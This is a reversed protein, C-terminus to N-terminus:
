ESHGGDPEAPTDKGGPRGGRRTAALERLTQVVKEVDWRAHGGVSVLDPVLHGDQRYKRITRPALGIVRSLEATSVLRPPNEM